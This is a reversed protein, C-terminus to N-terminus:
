KCPDPDKDTESEHLIYAHIRNMRDLFLRSYMETGQATPHIHDVLMPSRPNLDLYEMIAPCPNSFTVGESECYEKLAEIYEGYLGIKMEKTIKCFPDFGASPWPAVAFVAKASGRLYSVIADVTTVYEESTMCGTESRYRIDNCGIAIVAVDSEVKRSRLMELLEKANIGGKSVNTVDVDPYNLMLPEYWPVGGNETGETVSDGVFCASESKELAKIFPNDRYTELNLKDM